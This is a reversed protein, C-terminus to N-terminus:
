ISSAIVDQTVYVESLKQESGDYPKMMKRLGKSRLSILLWGARIAFYGFGM